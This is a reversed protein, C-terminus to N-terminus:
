LYRDSVRVTETPMYRVLHACKGEVEYVPCRCRWSRDGTDFYVRFSSWLIGHDSLYDDVDEDRYDDGPM